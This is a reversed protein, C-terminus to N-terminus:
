GEKKEAETGRRLGVIVAVLMMAAWAIAFVGRGEVNGVMPLPAAAAVREIHRPRGPAQDIVRFSFTESKVDAVPLTGEWLSKEDEWLHLQLFRLPEGCFEGEWANANKELLLSGQSQIEAKIQRDSDWVQLRWCRPGEGMVPMAYSLAIVVLM